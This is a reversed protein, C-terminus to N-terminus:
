ETVSPDSLKDNLAELTPQVKMPGFLDEYKSVARSLADVLAKAFEPNVVVCVRPEFAAEIRAAKETLGVALGLERPFVDGLYIRIENFSISPTAHNVYVIPVTKTEFSIGALPHKPPTSM